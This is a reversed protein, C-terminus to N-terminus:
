RGTRTRAAASGAPGRRWAHLYAPLLGGVTETAHQDDYAGRLPTYAHEVENLRQGGPRGATVFAVLAQAAGRVLEDPDDDM